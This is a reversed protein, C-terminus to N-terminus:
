SRSVAATAPSQCHCRDGRVPTPVVETLATGELVVPFGLATVHTVLLGVADEVWCFTLPSPQLRPSPSEAPADARCWSGIRTRPTQGLGLSPSAATPQLCFKRYHRSVGLRPRPPEPHLLLMKHKDLHPAQPSSGPSPLPLTSPLLPQASARAPLDTIGQSCCRM